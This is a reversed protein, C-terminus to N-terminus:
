GGGPQAHDPPQRPMPTGTPTSSAGVMGASVSWSISRQDLGGGAGPAPAGAKQRQAQGVLERLQELTAALASGSRASRTSFRIRSIRPPREVIRAEPM